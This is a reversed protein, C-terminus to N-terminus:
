RQHYVIAVIGFFRDAILYISLTPHHFTPEEEKNSKKFFVFFPYESYPGM